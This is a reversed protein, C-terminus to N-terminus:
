PQDDNENTRFLSAPLGLDNVLNAEPNYDWAYRVSIPSPVEPSAVIVTAGDIRASAPVYNGDPGAIEFGILTGGGRV